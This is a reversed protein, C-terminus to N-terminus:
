HATSPVAAPALREERRARPLRVVFCGGWGAQDECTLQGGVRAALQHAISLGLGSGGERTTFFPDFIRSRMASPVGPGSDLFAIRVQRAEAALGIQVRGGSPAAQLANMALNLAIQRLNDEGIAAVAEGSGPEEVVELAVGAQEARRRLLALASRLCPAVAVTEGAGAPADARAYQLFQNVLRNLRDVEDLIDRCGEILDPPVQGQRRLSAELDQTSASIIELPNRVEHAFGAALSGLSTLRDAHAVQREYRRQRVLLRYFLGGVLGVCITSIVSLLRFNKALAELQGLYDRGATFCIVAIPEGGAQSPVATYVRKLPSTEAQYAPSGASRGQLAASFAEHDIEIFDFRSLFPHRDSTSMLVRGSRDLLSMSRLRGRQVFEEFPARLLADLGVLEREIAETMPSEPQTAETQTLNVVDLIEAAADRLIPLAVEGLDMLHKELEDEKSITVMELGYWAGVYQVVLILAILLLAVFGTSRVLPLQFRLARV